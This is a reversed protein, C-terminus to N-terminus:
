GIPPKPLRLRPPIHISLRESSLDFNSISSYNLIKDRDAGQAAIIEKDIGDRILQRYEDKDDLPVQRILM